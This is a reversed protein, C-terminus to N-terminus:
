KHKDIELVRKTKERACAKKRRRIRAREEKRAAERGWTNPDTAWVESITDTRACSLRACSCALLLFIWEQSDLVQIWLEGVLTVVCRFGTGGREGMPFFLHSIVYVHMLIINMHKSSTYLMRRVSVYPHNSYFLISVQCIHSRFRIKPSLIHFLWRKFSNFNCLCAHKISM